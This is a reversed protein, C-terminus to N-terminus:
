KGRAVQEIVRVIEGQVKASKDMSIHSVTDDGSLNINSLRGKFGDEVTLPAGWGPSQYFNMAHRVNVPVPDQLFPALTILLDVAINQAGLDRAMEIVNNAGQSHGVLVIAPRGGAARERVLAAVTSQASFHSIAEARIGKAALEEAIADLGTSFVGFWGRLLYVRTDAAQAFTSWVLAAALALVRPAGFFTVLIRGTAGM